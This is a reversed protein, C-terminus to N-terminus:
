PIDQKHKIYDAFIQVIEPDFHKGSQEIIHDIAKRKSWAKRYPRDSTLADYVDVIAFLRASLPIEEGKLGLPYGTGDWKEHHLHPIELAPRLYEISQLMEYAYQPHRQMISFEQNTLLDSKLLIADPIGMKGIDHLLAGRRIHELNEEPVNMMRALGLTMETVRKTHGETEKDRLDMALSWGQITADYARILEDKVKQLGEILQANEIAVAAEGALTEYYDLWENDPDIPSRHFVEIVGILNSKAVLPIGFYDQIREKKLLSTFVPDTCDILGTQHIMVGDKAVKGALCNEAKLKLKKIGSSRFGRNGVYQFENQKEDYLSIAVANVQLQEKVHSLIIFLIRELQYNSNIAIDIERLTVIRKLRRQSEALLNAIKLATKKSDTIDTHTGVMRLPRGEADYEIVSGLSLIWIWKGTATRQRFEVRFDPIKNTIYKQFTEDFSLKDEPHLRSILKENTEVFTGPDYELMTAYNENVVAEGTQLNIDYMGQNAAKLALRLREESDHLLKESKKRETIDQIIGSLSIPFGKKDCTLDATDAWITRITGDKRIIRFETPVPKKQHISKSILRNVAKRDDPHILKTTIEALNGTFTEKEIGLITYVQDSAELLSSPIHWIWNGVNAIVQARKLNMESSRLADEAEKRETIDWALVFRAKRGNFDLQRSTTEVFIIEGNKLSHRWPGSQLFGERHEMSQNIFAPVDEEPHIERLTMSLFEEKSYGYKKRASDNVNLFQLTEQDHIWMPIPNNEFLFKYSTESETLLQNVRELEVLKDKFKHMLVENFMQYYASEDNQQVKSPNAKEAYFKDILETLRKLFLDPETAKMIHGNVGFNLSFKRQSSDTFTLTYFFYPINSFNLNNKWTNCLEFGDLVPMLIDSIVLDPLDAEATQLAEVGSKAWITEYENLKFLSKLLFYNEEQDDVILVKKM